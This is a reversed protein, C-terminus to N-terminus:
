MQGESQLTHRSRHPMQYPSKARGTREARQNERAEDATSGGWYELVKELSFVPSVPVNGTYVPFTEVPPCAIGYWQRNILRDGRLSM